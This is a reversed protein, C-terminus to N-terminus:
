FSIRKKSYMDEFIFYTGVFCMIASFFYASASMLNLLTLYFLIRLSAENRKSLHYDSAYIGLFGLIIWIIPIIRTKDILPINFTYIFSLAGVVISLISGTLYLLIGTQEKIDVKPKKHFINLRIEMIRKLLSLYKRKMISLLQEIFYIFKEFISFTQFKLFKCM